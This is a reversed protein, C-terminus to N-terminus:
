FQESLWGKGHVCPVAISRSRTTNPHFCRSMFDARVAHVLGQASELSCLGYEGSYTTENGNRCVRALRPLIFNLALDVGDNSLDVEGKTDYCQLLCYERITGSTCIKCSEINNSICHSIRTKM